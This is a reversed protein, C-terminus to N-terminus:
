RPKGRRRSRVREVRNAPLTWPVPVGTEVTIKPRARPTKSWPPSVQPRQREPQRTAGIQGPASKMTPFRPAKPGNLQRGCLIALAGPGHRRSNPSPTSRPFPPRKGSAVPLVCFGPAKEIDGQSMGESAPLQPHNRRHEYTLSQKLWALSQQITFLSVDPPARAGFHQM